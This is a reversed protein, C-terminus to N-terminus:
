GLSQLAAACAEQVFSQATSVPDTQVVLEEGLLVAGTWGGNRAEAHWRGAPLPPLEEATAQPYPWPTVYWYPQAYTGDGPSLGMGVSRAEEADVGADLTWLTAIDFHHPWLRM